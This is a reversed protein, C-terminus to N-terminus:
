RAREWQDVITDRLWQLAADNHSKRHWYMKVDFRPFPFPPEALQLRPDAQYIAAAAEPVTAILDTRAVVPPISLFHSAIYAVSSQVGRAQLYEEVPDLTLLHGQPDIRGRVM